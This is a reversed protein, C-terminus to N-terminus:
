EDGLTQNEARSDTVGEKAEVAQHLGDAGVAPGDMKGAPSNM